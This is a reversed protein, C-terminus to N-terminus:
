LIKAIKWSVKRSVDIDVHLNTPQHRWLECREMYKSYSIGFIKIQACIAYYFDTGWTVTITIIQM